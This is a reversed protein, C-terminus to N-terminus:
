VEVPPALRWQACIIWGPDFPQQVVRGLGAHAHIVSGAEAAIALHHQGRGLGLLLVDGACVPGCAKILGSRDACALWTGIELNRLGYGRPTIPALGCATIAAAVLGVCDLGTAPDRGHLRFRCGLLAQAARLLREREDGM